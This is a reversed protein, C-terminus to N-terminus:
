NVDVILGRERLSALFAAVEAACVERTVEFEGVLMDVIAPETTPQELLEWIRVGVDNLSHYRGAELNLMLLLDNVQNFLVNDARRIRADSPM